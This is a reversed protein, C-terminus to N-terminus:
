QSPAMHVELDCLITPATTLNQGNTSQALVRWTQTTSAAISSQFGLSANFDQATGNETVNMTYANSACGVLSNLSVCIAVNDQAVGAVSNSTTDCHAFVQVQEAIAPSTCSTIAVQQLSGTITASGTAFNLTDALAAIFDTGNSVVQNGSGGPALFNVASAGNGVVLDHATLSTQGTGGHAAGLAGTLATSAGTLDISQFSASTGTVTDTYVQGATGSTCILHGTGDTVIPLNTTTSACTSLNQGTGGNATGLVGTTIHSVSVVTPNPYTSSLDGGAAGTPPGGVSGNNTITVDQQGTTTNDVSSVTIGTSGIIHTHGSVAGFLPLGGILGLVVAGSLKM